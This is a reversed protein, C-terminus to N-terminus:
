HAILVKQPAAISGMVRAIYIGAPLAAVDIQAGRSSAVPRGHINYLVLLADHPLGDIFLMSNAPNPWLRLTTAPTAPEDIAVLAESGFYPRLLLSGAHISQQWHDDTLYFIRDSSNYSRDFGLNIFTNGEQEFGVFVREEVIAPADLRCRQWRGLHDASPHRAAADRYLLEGPLGADDAAWLCIRFAVGLNEGDTTRNFLLDVATLTDLQHLDFRYALFLQSATSTLGYGDDPTGDDYAYYNDFHQLFRVTDNDGFADGSAGERVVHTVLYTTPETMLPFSGNVPPQAHADVQQYQMAPLYAPANEYGGNYQWLPVGNSDAVSYSYRSALDSSYLNTITMALSSAMDTPRYQRAPMTRYHALMSPAPQVFAVDRFRPPHLTDRHSDVLVYDIYWFDSNGARGPKTTVEASCFNRFRFAFASDLFASDAIHLAVYQWRTGTRSVLSDVSIGPTAWVNVWVSDTPRFFDLMLSDGEEPTNGVRAWPEAGGGGPLYYFSLVVSDAPAFGDLRLPLSCLTDAPFTSLSTSYLDGTASIADLCAVGVTPPLLAGAASVTAGGHQWRDARPTAGDRAFDDFFPLTVAAPTSKVAPRPTPSGYQLPAVLDQGWVCTPLLICLLIILRPMRM